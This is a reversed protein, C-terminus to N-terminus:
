FLENELDLVKPIHLSNIQEAVPKWERGEFLLRECIRRKLLGKLYNGKIDKCYLLIKKKFLEKDQILYEILKKFSKTTLNFGLSILCDMENDTLSFKQPLYVWIRKKSALIDQELFVDVQMDDIIDGEKVGLTHGVGITWIGATDQYAKYRVGEFYKLFDKIM